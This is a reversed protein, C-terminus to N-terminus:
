RILGKQFLNKLVCLLRPVLVKQNYMKLCDDYTFWGYESHEYNLIVPYKIEEAFFVVKSYGHNYNVVIDRVSTKDLDIGVEERTERLAADLLSENDDVGGGVLCFKNPQWPASNGRKLLLVKGSNLLAITASKQPM